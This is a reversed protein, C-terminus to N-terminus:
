PHFIKLYTQEYKHVYQVSICVLAFNIAVFLIKSIPNHSCVHAVLASIMAIGFGAYVWEKMRAPIQPILLVFAGIVNAIVLEIRFYDPFGLHRLDDGHTYSYYASFLIFFSIFGKAIRYLREYRKIPEMSIM